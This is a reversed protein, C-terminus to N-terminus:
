RDFWARRPPEDQYDPLMEQWRGLLRRGLNGCLVGFGAPLWMVITLVIVQNIAYNRLGAHRPLVGDWAPTMVLIALVSAALLCMLAALLVLVRVHEITVGLLLATLFATIVIWSGDLHPDIVGRTASSARVVVAALAATLLLWQAAVIAVRWGRRTM